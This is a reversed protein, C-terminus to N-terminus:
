PYRKVAWPTSYPLEPEISGIGNGATDDDVIMLRIAETTASLRAFPSKATVTAGENNELEQSDGEDGTTPEYKDNNNQLTEMWIELYKSEDPELTGVNWTLENFGFHIGDWEEGNPAYDYWSVGETPYWSRPAINNKLIDTVVVNTLVTSGCNEIGIILRFLTPSSVAIAILNTPEEIPLGTYPDTFAGELTKRIKVCGKWCGMKVQGHIKANDTWASYSVGCISLSLTIMILITLIKGKM